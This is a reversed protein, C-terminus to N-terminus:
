LDSKNKRHGWKRVVYHAFDSIENNTNLDYLNLHPTTRSIRTVQLLKIDEQGLNPRSGDPHM